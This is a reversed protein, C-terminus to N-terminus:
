SNTESEDPSHENEQWSGQGTERSSDGESGNGDSLTETDEQYFSLFQSLPVDDITICKVRWRSAQSAVTTFFTRPLNLEDLNARRLHPLRCLFEALNAAASESIFKGESLDSLKCIKLQSIQCSSALTVATSLFSDPLYRCELRFKSLRPMTCVWQAFDKGVWSLKLTDNDHLRLDLDEIQCSSALTAATSFFSDPLYACELIFKSLRPMTCVWQAFDEGVSSLKLIDDDDLRVNLDEIRSLADALKNDKGAIHMIRLPYPQLILSWRFLRQNKHKLRELFTLPNHDTYVVIDIGGDLYAEFHQVALVVSLCEKEVTSYKHQHRNLKKSFFCVPKSHGNDDDQLLMAGVGRDSADTALQFSREFNPAILVPDNMLVAKLKQFADQCSVSWQFTTGKKLLYTLPMVLHSFNPVFRRYFGCMGLFRQLERKSAPVPFDMIARVKADRPAVSGRGVKHGLYTVCAKGCECKALNVVLGAHSLRRFLERLHAVHEEWTNNPVLVVPSSWNSNSPEIIGNALMFDIERDVQARKAPHIRYPHQKIPANDGVDVTHVTDKACGLKDSCVEPFEQFIDIVDQRESDSLLSLLLEPNELAKSNEVRPIMGSKFSVSQSDPADPEFEEASKEASHVVSESVVAGVDEVREHYIKLMNVHCVRKSKRRDPMSVVYTEKGLKREVVYPGSFKAKLADGSLPLLVLVKDAVEFVRSKAKRDFREKMTRQSSKVHERAVENARVLRERFMSIYDLANSDKEEEDSLLQEKVVKLPGRPEHGFVLEFPSFGTSENPVERAAFLLFPIGKDWDRPNDQCYVKLMTKLTQHYRELAGQSQPHYASSKIQQIGLQYMLEQCSSALTVVTSLFSNPLYPCWLILKSLRPMTCVWQALDKGVSSQSLCDDGSSFNLTLDEILCNSAEARLIKYFEVHFQSRCLWVKRLVSSSCMGEALDRSVTRGCKVANMDLSQVQNYRVMFVVGSVLHEPSHWLLYENWQEGVAKTAEETHCEFAIDVCFDRQSSSKAMGKIIDLGIENGLASTFYLVYRFEEPRSLLKDRVKDYKVRDNDFLYEIYVGAIYEQFLKHPFSVTSTVLSSINVDRRRERTIVNKEKTLVGVRCCTKMADRCKRFQKEPFSLNSHFLGELAIESIEHIARGAKKLHKVIYQNQLNECIKSAYHEKLFFIMEGFIQSFTRLKQMERRREESFDNWLLCLMACYIPFPAMNSRIVDNEQMFSILSKALNDKERIRFYKRIYTSLNEKNFGQVHLFTYTEALSKDMMFENTRWPRTTVIVKCSNYQESVLIRIVESSSTKSLKENFEDFGDFIILIRSLNASIYDDIKKKTATNSHSLYTKVFGGISTAGKIDRLPILLVMDLDQLIKGQCWDWAIKACLTTKGVGGEGQILLRKSLIGNENNTLLDDYTIPTKSKSNRDIISLNTYINDLEVREMFNLPDVTVKRRSVCYYEKLEEKCQQVQEKTLSPPKRMLEEEEHFREPINPRRWCPNWGCGNQPLYEPHKSQLYKGVSFILVVIAVPVGITLGVILGLNVRKGSVSSPLITIERTSTGNLSDGTAMCVFTQETGHEASVTITEFREYTGDSLTNQQSVVSNLKNGSKETWLMSVNPKFGIVVCTLNLSHTYSPSQYTCRSQRSQIRDACEEITHGSAMSSITMITSNGFSQSNKLVVLCYYRGEDAMELSSIALSFNKDVDFREERSFFEGDVFEAKATRQQQDSIKEKVWQVVVPEKKIDCRLLVDEGKWGKVNPATSVVSAEGSHGSFVTTSLKLLLVLYYRRDM